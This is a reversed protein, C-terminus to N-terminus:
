PRLKKVPTDEVFDHDITIEIGSKDPTPPVMIQRKVGSASGGVMGGVAKARQQLPAKAFIPAKPPSPVHQMITEADLFPNLPVRSASGTPTKLMRTPMRTTAATTQSARLPSFVVTNKDRNGNRIRAGVEMEKRIKGRNAKSAEAAKPDLRKSPAKGVWSQKLAEAAAAKSKSPKPLKVERQQILKLLKSDYQKKRSNTGGGKSESASSTLSGGNQSLRSSPYGTESMVGPPKDSTQAASLPQKWLKSPLRSVQKSPSFPQPAAPSAAAMDTAAGSKLLLSNVLDPLQSQYMMKIIGAAFGSVGSSSDTVEEEIGAVSGWICLRDMWEEAAHKLHESPSEVEAEKGKGNSHKRRKSPTTPQQGEASKRKRSGMVASRNDLPKPAPAVLSLQPLSVTTYLSLRLMELILVIQLQAETMRLENMADRIVAKRDFVGEEDSRRTTRSLNEWQTMWSELAESEIKDPIMGENQLFLCGEKVSNAFAKCFVRCKDEFKPIPILLTSAFFNWILTFPEESEDSNEHIYQMARHLGDVGLLTLLPMKEPEYLAMICHHRLDNLAEDISTYSSPVSVVNIEDTVEAPTVEARETSADVVSEVTSPNLKADMDWVGLSTKVLDAANIGEDVSGNSNFFYDMLSTDLGEGYWADVIDWDITDKEAPQMKMLTDVFDQKVPHFCGIGPSLGALIAIRPEYTPVGYSIEVIVGLQALLLSELFASLQNSSDVTSSTQPIVVYAASELWFRKVGALRVTEKIAMASNPEFPTEVPPPKSGPLPKSGDRFPDEEELSGSSNRAKLRAQAAQDVTMSLLQFSYTQDNAYTLTGSWLTVNKTTPGRGGLKGLIEKRVITSDKLLTRGISPHATKPRYSAFAVSFPALTADNLFHNASILSGGYARLIACLSHRIYPVVTENLSTTDLFQPDIWNIATRKDLYGDLLGNGLFATQITDLYPEAAESTELVNVFSTTAGVQPEIFSDGEVFQRLEAVSKPAASVLFLYNRIRVPANLSTARRGAPRAPSQFFGSQPTFSWGFDVLAKRLVMNMNEVPPAVLLAPPLDDKATDAARNMAVQIANDLMALASPRLDRSRKSDSKKAPAFSAGEQQDFIQFGWSIRSDVRLYFFLLTKLIVFRLTRASEESECQKSDILFILNPAGRATASPSGFAPPPLQM